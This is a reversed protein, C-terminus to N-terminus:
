SKILTNFQERLQHVAADDKDAEARRLAQLIEQRQQKQREKHIRGLCDEFVQQPEGIKGEDQGSLRTVLSITAADDIHM